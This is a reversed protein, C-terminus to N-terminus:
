GFCRPAENVVSGLQAACVVGVAALEGPVEVFEGERCPRLGYTWSPGVWAAEGGRWRWVVKAAHDFGIVLAMRWSLWACVCM